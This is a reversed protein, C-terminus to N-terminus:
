DAHFRAGSQCGSDPREPAKDAGSGGRKCTVEEPAPPPFPVNTEGLFLTRAALPLPHAGCAM